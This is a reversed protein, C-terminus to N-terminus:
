RRYGFLVVGAAALSRRVAEPPCAALVQWAEREHGRSALARELADRRHNVSCCLAAAQAAGVTAIAQCLGATAYGRAALEDVSQELAREGDSRGPAM